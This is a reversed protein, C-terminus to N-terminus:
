RRLEELRTRYEETDLEGRAYRRKLLEEPSQSSSASSGSTRRLGGATLWVIVAIVAILAIWFAGIWGIGYWAGHVM